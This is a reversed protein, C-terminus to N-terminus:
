SFFLNPFTISVMMMWLFYGVVCDMNAAILLRLSTDHMIHLGM